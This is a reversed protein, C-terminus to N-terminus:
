NACRLGFCIILRLGIAFDSVSKAFLDAIADDLAAPLKALTSTATASKDAAAGNTEQQKSKKGM